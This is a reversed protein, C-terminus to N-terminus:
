RFTRQWESFALFLDALANDDPLRELNLTPRAEGPKLEYWSPPAKVICAMLTSVMHAINGGGMARSMREIKLDDGMNPFRLVVTGNMKEAGPIKLNTSVEFTFEPQAFPHGDALGSAVEPALGSVQSLIDNM